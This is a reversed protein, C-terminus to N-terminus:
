ESKKKISHNRLSNKKLKRDADKAKRGIQKLFHYQCLQHPTNPLVNEIASRLVTENDSVIGLIKWPMLKVENLIKSIEKANVYELM